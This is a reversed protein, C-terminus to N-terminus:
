EETLENRTRIPDAAPSTCRVSIKAPRFSTIAEEPPPQGPLGARRPGTTFTLGRTADPGLALPQQPEGPEGTSSRAPHDVRASRRVPDPNGGGSPELARSGISTSAGRAAAATEKTSGIPDHNVEEARPFPRAVTVVGASDRSSPM